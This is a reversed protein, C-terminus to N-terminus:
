NIIWWQDLIENYCLQCLEEDYTIVKFFRWGPELWEDEIQSVNYEKDRWVFSMPRQAYSHGSYCTVKIKNMRAM